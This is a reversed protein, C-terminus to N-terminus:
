VLFDDINAKVIENIKTQLEDSETVTLWREQHIYTTPNPIYQGNDKTWQQSQKQIELARMIAPYTEKLKPINKFARFAGKKDVKKPYVSWFDLFLKEAESLVGDEKKLQKNKKTIQKNLEKNINTIQIFASKGCTTSGGDPKAVMQNKGSTTIEVQPSKLMQSNQGMEYIDWSWREVKGKDNTHRTLVIYGEAQLEKVLRKITHETAGTQKVLGKISFSWDDPLSLLYALFGRAEWSLNVNRLVANSVQTFGADHEERHVM